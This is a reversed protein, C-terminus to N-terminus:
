DHDEEKNKQIYDVWTQLSETLFDELNLKQVMEIAEDFVASGYASCISQIALALFKKDQESLRPLTRENLLYEVAERAPRYYRDIHTFEAGSLTLRSFDKRKHWLAAAVVRYSLDYNDM